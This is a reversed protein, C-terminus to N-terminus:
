IEYIYKNSIPWFLACSITEMVNKERYLVFIEISKMFTQEFGANQMSKTNLVLKKEFHLKIQKTLIIYNAGTRAHKM